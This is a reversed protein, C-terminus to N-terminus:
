GIILIKGVYSDLRQSIKVYLDHFLSKLGLQVTKTGQKPKIISVTRSDPKAYLAGGSSIYVPKYEMKDPIEKNSIYAVMVDALLDSIKQRSANIRISPGGAKFEDPLWHYFISQYMDETLDEFVWKQTSINEIEIDEKVAASIDDFRTPNEVDNEIVHFLDHALWDAGSASISNESLENTYINILDSAYSDLFIKFDADVLKRLEVDDRQDNNRLIRQVAWRKANELEYVYTTVPGVPNLPSRYLHIPKSFNEFMQVYKDSRTLPRNYRAVPLATRSIKTAIAYFDM